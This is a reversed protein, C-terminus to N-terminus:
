QDQWMEIGLQYKVRPPVRIGCREALDAVESPPAERRPPKGFEQSTELVYPIQDLYMSLQAMTLDRIQWPTFGYM